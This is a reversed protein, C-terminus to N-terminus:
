EKKETEVKDENGDKSSPFSFPSFKFRTSYKGLIVHGIKNLGRRRPMM